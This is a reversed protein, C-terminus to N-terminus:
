SSILLAGTTNRVLFVALFTRTTKYTCFVLYGGKAAPINQIGDKLKEALVRSTDVLNINNFDHISAKFGNDSFKARRITKKSFAEDLSTIISQVKQNNKDLGANTLILDAGTTKEHKKIEHIVVSQIDM